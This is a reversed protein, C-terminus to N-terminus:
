SALLLLGGVVSVNSLLPWPNQVSFTPVKFLVTAVVTFIVLGVVSLNSLLTLWPHAEMFIDAFSCVVIIFPAILQLLAAAIILAKCLGRSLVSASKKLINTYGEIDRLKYISSISFMLLVLVSAVTRLISM